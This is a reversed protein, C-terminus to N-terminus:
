PPVMETCGLGIVPERQLRAALRRLGSDAALPQRGDHFSGGILSLPRGIQINAGHANGSAVLRRVGDPM